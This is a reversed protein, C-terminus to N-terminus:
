NLDVSGHGTSLWIMRRGTPGGANMGPPSRFTNHEIICHRVTENRGLLYAESNGGWRTVSTLRNWSLDCDRVGSLFLPTRGWLNCNIVRSGQAHFLRVGCNEAQKGEVDKVQVAELSM